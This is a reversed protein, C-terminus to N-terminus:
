PVRYRLFVKESFDKLITLADRPPIHTRSFDILILDAGCEAYSEIQSLWESSKEGLKEPYSLPSALSIRRKRGSREITEVM